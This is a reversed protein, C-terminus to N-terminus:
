LWLWDLMTLIKRFEFCVIIHGSGSLSRYRIRSCWISVYVIQLTVFHKSSTKRIVVQRFRFDSEKM